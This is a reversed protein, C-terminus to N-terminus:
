PLPPVGGLTAPTIGDVLGYDRAEAASLWRGAAVDRALHEASHLTHQVLAQQWRERIRAVEQVQNALADPRGPSLDVPDEALHIRAHPLAFRKGAAGGALVVVAAGGCTSLCTTSVAASLSQLSDYVALASGVSGGPCDIYLEIPQGAGTRSILLLQAIANNAAADDLRGRLFVVRRGLLASQLEPPLSM